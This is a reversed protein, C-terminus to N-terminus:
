TDGYFFDLPNLDPSRAPWSIPGGRGIWRNPFSENLFQTVRRDFHAPAGDHQFHMDRLTMLPVDDLLDFLQNQLFDLYIEGSLRGNFIYPGILNRGIVGCWVNVSFRRQFNSETTAHPNVENWIHCNRTNNLGNRTFTAEDTFLIKTLLDNNLSLWRCYNFRERFDREELQQVKQIHYPYMNERRITRWISVHPINARASLRRTSTSPSRELMPLIEEHNTSERESSKSFSGTERLKRHTGIFVNRSPIVRNPFRVRYEEVARRASGNCFGYVFHIDAYEENTFTYPM